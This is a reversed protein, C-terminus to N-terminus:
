RQSSYQEMHPHSMGWGRGGNEVKPKEEMGGWDKWDKCTGLGHCDSPTWNYLFICIDYLAARNGLDARGFAPMLDNNLVAWLFGSPREGNYVWNKISNAAMSPVGKQEALLVFETETLQKM